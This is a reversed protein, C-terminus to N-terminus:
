AVSEPEVGTGACRPCPPLEVGEPVRAKFDVKAGGCAYCKVVPVPLPSVSPGQSAAAVMEALAADGVMLLGATRVMKKRKMGRRMRLSRLEHQAVEELRVLDAFESVLQHLDESTPL